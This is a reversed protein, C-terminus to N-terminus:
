TDEKDGFLLRNAKEEDICNMWGAGHLEAAADQITIRGAEVDQRLSTLIGPIDFAEM